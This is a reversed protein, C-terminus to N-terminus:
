GNVLTTIRVRPVARKAFPHVVKRGTKMFEPAITESVGMQLMSGITPEFLNFIVKL